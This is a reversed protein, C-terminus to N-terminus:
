RFAGRSSDGGALEALLLAGARFTQADPVGPWTLWVFGDGTAIQCSGVRPLLAAGEDSLLGRPLGQAEGGALTARLESPFGRADALKMTLGQRSLGSMVDGRNTAFRLMPPAETPAHFAADASRALEALEAVRYSAVEGAIAALADLQDSRVLVGVVTAMVEAGDSRVNPREFFFAARRATPTWAAAIAATSEGKIVFRADFAPDDLQLDQAGLAKGVASLIGESSVQFSPGFGLAFRSRARTYTTSTKGQRVVYVDIAVSAHGHPVVISASRHTFFGGSAPVLYGGRAEAWARWVAERERERQRAFRMALFVIGGIFATFVVFVGVVLGLILVVEM